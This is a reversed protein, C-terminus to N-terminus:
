KNEEKGACDRLYAELSRAGKIACTGTFLWCFKNTITDYYGKKGRWFKPNASGIEAMFPMLDNLYIRSKEVNGEADKKEWLKLGRGLLYNKM